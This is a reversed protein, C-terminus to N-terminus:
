FTINFGMCIGRTQQGTKRWGRFCQCYAEPVLKYAKLDASKVVKYYKYDESSLASYVEQAKGTFVCQLMLIREEDPWCRLDAVHEFLCFFTEVDNENFKPLLRLNCCPLMLFHVLPNRM